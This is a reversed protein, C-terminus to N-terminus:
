IAMRIRELARKAQLFDREKQKQALAAEKVKRSLNTAEEFMTRIKLKFEEVANGLEEMPNLVVPEPTAAPHHTVSPMSVTGVNPMANMSEEQKPQVTQPQPKSPFALPMAIYRGVGGTAIFPGPRTSFALRHHGQNLLRLLLERNVTVKFDGWSEPFAAPFTGHMEGATVDLSGRDNSMALKVPHNPPDAPVSKLFNALQATQEAPLHVARNLVSVAPVVKRWDPYNGMLAKGTWTWNGLAISFFRQEKDSWTTLTGEDDCKTALLAHPFPVTLSDVALPLPINVLEKGNTAVIGDKCLHIGQLVRRPEHRDVIPAATALASVFNEPLVSIVADSAPVGITPWEAHVTALLTHDVGFRGEEYTLFINKTKNYRAVTRFNDFNVLVAFEEVGEVPLAYTVAEDSGVTQFSVIGNKGEIRLSRYVEAPNTRSVLKGLANLAGALENRSIEVNM